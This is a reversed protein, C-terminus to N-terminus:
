YAIRSAVHMSRSQRNQGASIRRRRGLARRSAGMARVHSVPEAGPSFTQRTFPYNIMSAPFTLLRMDHPINMRPFAAPRGLYDAYGLNELWREFHKWYLDAADQGVHEILYRCLDDIIADNDLLTNDIDFLFVTSPPPM